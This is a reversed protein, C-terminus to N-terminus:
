LRVNERLSLFCSRLGTKLLMFCLPRSILVPLYVSLRGRDDPALTAPATTTKTLLNFHHDVKCVNMNKNLLLDRGGSIYKAPDARIADAGNLLVGKVRCM